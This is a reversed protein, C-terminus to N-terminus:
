DMTMPVTKIELPKLQGKWEVTKLTKGDRIKAIQITYDRNPVLGTLGHSYNINPKVTYGFTHPSVRASCPTILNFSFQLSDNTNIGTMQFNVQALPTVKLNYELILNEGEQKQKFVEFPMRYIYDRSCRLFNSDCTTYYPLINIFNIGRNKVFTTVSDLPFEYSGDENVPFFNMKYNTRFNIDRFGIKVNSGHFVTRLEDLSLPNGAETLYRGKVTINKVVDYNIDQDEKKCSSFLSFAISLIVFLKKM